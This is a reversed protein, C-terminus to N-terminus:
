HQDGELLRGRMKHQINKAGVNERAEFQRAKEQQGHSTEDQNKRALCFPLVENCVCPPLITARLNRASVSVPRATVAPVSLGVM